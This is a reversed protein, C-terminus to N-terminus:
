SPKAAPTGGAPSPSNAAATMTTADRGAYIYILILIVLAVLLLGVTYAFPLYAFTSLAAMVVGWGAYYHRDKADVLFFASAVTWIGVFLLAYSAAYALNILGFLNAALSLLVAVIVGVGWGLKM